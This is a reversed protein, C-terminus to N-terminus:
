RDVAAGVKGVLREYVLEGLAAALDLRGLQDVDRMLQVHERAAGFIVRM